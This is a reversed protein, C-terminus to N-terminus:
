SSFGSVIMFNPPVFGMHAWSLECFNRIYLSRIRLNVNKGKYPTEIRNLYRISKKYDKEYFHIYAQAMAKTKEQENEQIFTIYKKEFKKAWSFDQCAAAIVIANIFVDGQITDKESFLDHQDRFKYLSLVEEQYAGEQKRDETFAFNGLLITTMMKAERSVKDPNEFLFHKLNKYAMEDPTQMFTNALIYFKLLHHDKLNSQTALEIVENLLLIEYQQRRIKNRTLLELSYILKSSFYFYDLNKMCANIYNDAIPKTRATELHYFLDHNINLLNQFDKLTKHEIQEIKKAADESAERFKTYNNRRAYAKNLLTLGLDTDQNLEEIKLYNEIKRTLDIKLGHFTGKNFARDPYLKKYLKKETLNKNDFDSFEKRLLGFLKTINKNTNHFPSELFRAIKPLDESSLKMLTGKILKSEKFKRMTFDNIATSCNANIIIRLYIFYLAILM